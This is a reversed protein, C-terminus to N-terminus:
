ITALVQLAEHQIITDYHESMFAESAPTYLEQSGYESAINCVKNFEEPSHANKNMILFYIKRSPDKYLSNDGKYFGKLIMALNSVTELKDLSYLKTLNLTIADANEKQKESVPNQM